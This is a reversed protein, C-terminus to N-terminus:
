AVTLDDTYYLHIIPIYFDSPISLQEFEEGEDDSPDLRPLDLQVGRVDLQVGPGGNETGSEAM